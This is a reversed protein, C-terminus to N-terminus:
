GRTLCSRTKGETYVEAAFLHGAGSILRSQSDFGPLYLRRTGRPPDMISHLLHPFLMPSFLRNQSRHPSGARVACIAVPGRTGVAADGDSVLPLAIALRSLPSKPKIINGAAIAAMTRPCMDRDSIRLLAPRKFPDPSANPPKIMPYRPNDMIGTRIMAAM